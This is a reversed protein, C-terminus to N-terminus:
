QQHLHVDRQPFPISIGEEDFRLKMARNLAWFTEWYDDKNVWPRVIFNVSSEGLEHLRIMAPPDELVAPHAAVVEAMVKEAKEIDDSYAIGFVLDIRRITQATVNKIVDGWIKGNPVIITQNDFTLFTTNVLSMESVLGSVGGAEIVDDVDFPRYILILMGAAFNSLTDQLAFGVVFGVLGMGALLPGVSFGIQSLAILVGLILVTNRVISVVMRKLLQSLHFRSDELGRETLTQALGALKYFVYVIIVLLFLNFILGPGSEIVGAWLTESWGVLLNTFVGVQFIDSTIQGTALLLQNQYETTDMELTKMMALVSSVNSALNTIHTTLVNLRAKSEADDPVAAISARLAKIDSTAMELLVSGNEARDSLSQELAAKEATVDRGFRPAVEITAIQIQYIRNLRDIEEFIQSFIAAQEAASATAEPLVIRGRLAGISTEIARLQSELITLAQQHYKQNKASSKELEAVQRLFALNQELLNMRSRILRSELAIKIIDEADTLRKGLNSISRSERDIEALISDINLSQEATKSDEAYAVTLPSLLAGTLLLLTVNILRKTAPLM